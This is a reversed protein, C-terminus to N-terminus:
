LEWTFIVFTLLREAISVLVTIFLLSLTTIVVKHMFKNLFFNFNSRNKVLVLYMKKIMQVAEITRIKNNESEVVLKIHFYVLKLCDYFKM